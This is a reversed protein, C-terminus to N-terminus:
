GSNHLLSSTDDYLLGDTVFIAIQNKTSPKISVLFSQYNLIKILKCQYANCLIIKFEQQWGSIFKIHM